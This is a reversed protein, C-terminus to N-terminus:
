LGKGFSEPAPCHRLLFLCIMFLEPLMANVTFSQYLICDKDEWRQRAIKATLCAKMHYYSVNGYQKLENVRVSTHLLSGFLITLCTNVAFKM